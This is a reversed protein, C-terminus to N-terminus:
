DGDFAPGDKRGKQNRSCADHTGSHQRVLHGCLSKTKQDARCAHGPCHRRQLDTIVYPALAMSDQSLQHLYFDLDTDLSNAWKTWLPRLTEVAGIDTALMVSYGAAATEEPARRPESIWDASSAFWKHSAEQRAKKPLSM